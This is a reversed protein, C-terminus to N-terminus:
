LAEVSVEYSTFKRINIVGTDFILYQGKIGLLVGEVVPNKDFNHSSIKTPYQQVPYHINVIDNDLREIADEGFEALLESIRQEIEPLLRAAEAKLDIEANDGKLMARWNTKDAVLEALAIETLGSLYRSKVKLIALAQTAGQDIWRTPLQTHRTIGVKLGSTNSLYVYHPVMCHTEGWQPERCTGKAYHCTEPKMICMDCRALSKMCPFCHGQSYSKKTKKGCADCFINGTFTLRIPQGIHPNLAFRQDGLPLHYEVVDGLQSHLKSLTGQM